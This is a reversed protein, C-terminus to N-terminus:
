KISKVSTNKSNDPLNDSNEYNDYNDYNIDYNLSSLSSSNKYKSPALPLDGSTSDSMPPTPTYSNNTVRLYDDSIFSFIKRIVLYYFLISMNIFIFTKIFTENFLSISNNNMYFMVQTVLQITSMRLIDYIMDIINPELDLKLNFFTNDMINYNYLIFFLNLNIM